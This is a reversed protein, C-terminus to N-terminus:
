IFSCYNRILLSNDLLLISFSLRLLLYM